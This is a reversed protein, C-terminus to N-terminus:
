RGVLAPRIVTRWCTRSWGEENPRELVDAPQARFLAEIVAPTARLVALTGPVLGDDDRESPQRTM